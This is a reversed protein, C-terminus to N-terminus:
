FRRFWINPSILPHADMKRVTQPRVKSYNPSQGMGLWDFFVFRGLDCTKLNVDEEIGLTPTQGSEQHLQTRRAKADGTGPTALQSRHVEGPPIEGLSALAALNLEPWHTLEM